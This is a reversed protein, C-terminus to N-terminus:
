LDRNLDARPIPIAWATPYYASLAADESGIAEVFAANLAHAQRMADHRSGAPLVDDPGQVHVCWVSENNNDAM